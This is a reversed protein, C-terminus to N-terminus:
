PKPCPSRPPPTSRRLTITPRAVPFQLGLENNSMPCAPACRAGGEGRKEYTNMRFTTLTRQKSVSKCTNIRFPSTSSRNRRRHKWIPDRGLRPLCPSVSNLISLLSPTCVGTTVPLIRLRTLAFPISAGRPAYSSPLSRWDPSQRERACRAFISVLPAPKPRLNRRVPQPALKM